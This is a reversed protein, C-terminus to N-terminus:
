KKDTDEKFIAGLSILENKDYSGQFGLLIRNGLEQAHVTGNKGGQDFPSANKDTVIKIRDVRNGTWIDMSKVKEDQQFKFTHKNGTENGKTDDEGDTWKVKIAKVLDRDKWGDAGKAIWVTIQEVPTLGNRLTFTTVGPDTESGGHKETSVVAKIGTVNASDFDSKSFTAM